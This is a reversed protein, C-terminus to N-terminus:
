CAQPSSTGEASMLCTWWLASLSSPSLGPDAWTHTHPPTPFLLCLVSPVTLLGRSAEGASVALSQTGLSMIQYM